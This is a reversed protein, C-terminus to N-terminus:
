KGSKELYTLIKYALEVRANIPYNKNALIVIGTKKSPVYMIYSAFGNTSGTKNILVNQQPQLAPKLEQIPNAKLIMDSSNGKLLQDLSVPYNYQEWILDQTMEITKFYGTHTNEIAKLVKAETKGIGMNADVFKIMDQTCSKIGYAEDALMAPNLRVQEDAKTYGQAYETMKAKPVNYYTNNMSLKSFINQNMAETFPQNFTKGAIVGLLGISPNSYVRETGPKYLPKWTKYYNILQDYNTVEDPLQLPLGGAAHTGLDYLKVSDFVTKKLEPIYKSVPDSFNLTGNLQSLSALSTTFTKSVSGLEFLTQDTVPKNNDKSIIGYNFFTHKGNVTVAISLGPIKNENMLPKALSDVLTTLDKSSEKKSEKCNSLSLSLSLLMIAVPLFKLKQM